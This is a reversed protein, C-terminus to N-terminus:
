RSHRVGQPRQVQAKIADLVTRPLVRIIKLPLLNSVSLMVGTAAVLAAANEIAGEVLPCADPAHSPLVNDQCHGCRAVAEAPIVLWSFVAWFSVFALSPWWSDVARIMQKCYRRLVHLSDRSAGKCHKVQWCTESCFSAEGPMGESMKTTFRAVLLLLIVALVAAPRGTALAACDCLLGHGLM